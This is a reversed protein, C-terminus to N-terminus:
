IAPGPGPEHAPPLPDGPARVPNIGPGSQTQPAPPGPSRGAARTAERVLALGTATFCTGFRVRYVDQRGRERAPIDDPHLAVGTAALPDRSTLSRGVRTIADGPSSAAAYRTVIQDGATAGAHARADAATRFYRQRAAPITRGAEDAKFAEWLWWPTGDDKAPEGPDPSVIIYGDRLKRRHTSGSARWLAAEAVVDAM